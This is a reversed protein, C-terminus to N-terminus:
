TEGTGYRTKAFLSDLNSDFKFYKKFNHLSTIILPNVNQIPNIDEDMNINYIISNAIKTKNKSTHMSFAVMNNPLLLVVAGHEIYNKIDIDLNIKKEIDLNIKKEININSASLIRKAVKGGKNISVQAFEIKGFYVAKMGRKPILILILKIM